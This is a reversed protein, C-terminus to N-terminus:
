IEQKQKHRKPLSNNFLLVNIAYTPLNKSIVEMKSKAIELTEKRRKNLYSDM